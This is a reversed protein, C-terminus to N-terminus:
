LQICLKETIFYIVLYDIHLHSAVGGFFPPPAILIYSAKDRIIINEPKVKDSIERIIIRVFSLLFVFFYDGQAVLAPHNFHKLGYVHYDCRTIDIVKNKNYWVANFLLCCIQQTFAIIIIQFIM